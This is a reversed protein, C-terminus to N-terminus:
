AGGVIEVASRGSKVAFPADLDLRENCVIKGSGDLAERSDDVRDDYRFCCRIRGIVYDKKGTKM